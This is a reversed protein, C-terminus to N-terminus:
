SHLLLQELRFGDITVKVIEGGKKFEAELYAKAAEDAPLPILLLTAGTKEHDADFTNVLAAYKGRFEELSPGLEHPPKVALLTNLDNLASRQSKSLEHFHRSPVPFFMEFPVDKAHKNM